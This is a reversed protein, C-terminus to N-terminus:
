LILGPIDLRKLTEKLGFHKTKIRAHQKPFLIYAFVTATLCFLDTLSM